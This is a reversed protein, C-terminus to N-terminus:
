LRPPEADGVLKRFAEDGRLPEFAVTEVIRRRNAPNLDIARGLAELTRSRDGAAMAARALALWAVDNEPSRETATAALKLAEASQGRALQEGSDQALQNAGLMTLLRRLEAARAAPEAIISSTRQSM